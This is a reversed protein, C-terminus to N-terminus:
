SNDMLKSIISLIAPNSSSTGNENTANCIYKGNDSLQVDSITLTTTYNEKGEGSSTNVNNVVGNSTVEGNKLWTYNVPAFSSSVCIFTVNSGNDVTMDM